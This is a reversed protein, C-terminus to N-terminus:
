QYVCLHFESHFIWIHVCRLKTLKMRGKREGEEEIWKRQELSRGELKLPDSGGGVMCASEKNQELKQMHFISVNSTQGESDPENWKAHLDEIGDM